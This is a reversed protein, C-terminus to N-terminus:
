RDFCESTSEARKTESIQDEPYKQNVSIQDRNHSGKATLQWRRCVSSDNAKSFVESAIM